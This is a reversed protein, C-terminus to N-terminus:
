IQKQEKAQEGVLAELSIHIRDKNDKHAITQSTYSRGEEFTLRHFFDPITVVWTLAEIDMREPSGVCSGIQGAIQYYHAQWKM